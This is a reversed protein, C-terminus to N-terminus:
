LRPLAAWILWAVCIALGFAAYRRRRKLSMLATISLLAIVPRSGQFFYYYRFKNGWISSSFLLAWYSGVLVFSFIAITWRWLKFYDLNSPGNM